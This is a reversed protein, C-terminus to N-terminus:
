KTQYQHQKEKCKGWTKAQNRLFCLQPWLKSSQLAIPSWSSHPLPPSTLFSPSTMPLHNGLQDGDPLWCLQDISKTPNDELPQLCLQMEPCWVPFFPLSHNALEPRENTSPKSWLTDAGQKELKAQIPVLRDELMKCRLLLLSIGPGSTLPVRRPCSAARDPQAWLFKPPAWLPTVPTVQLCTLRVLLRICRALWRQKWSEVDDSKLDTM